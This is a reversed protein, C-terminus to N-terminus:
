DGSEEDEDAAEAAGYVGAGAAGGMLAACGQLAPAMSLVTLLVLVLRKM